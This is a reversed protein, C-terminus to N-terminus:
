KSKLKIQSTNMRVDENMAIVFFNKGLPTSIFNNRWSINDGNHITMQMELKPACYENYYQDIFHEEAKATEGTTANYISTIPTNDNMNIVANINAGSKLGQSIIVDSTPQTIFKFETDDHKNIYRDTEDSMYILEDNDTTENKANDSYIKCSFDKLIISEVHSLVVKDNASWKTHRFWTPHRRTIDNWTSNVPGLIRFQIAGSLNDSKKIPIATGDADINMSINVTNQLKFDTGIIYDGIKPNVGLTFTTTTVDVNNEEDHWTPESGLEVWHFESNGYRDINTEILRKNGIILKCELVPLKSVLDQNEGFESYNFQFLHNAKDKVWPQLSSDNLWVTEDIPDTPNEITFFKRTYFRGNENNDSPVTKSFYVNNAIKNKLSTFGDTEETLPQLQLSGGFVLYNTTEEDSPSYVGGNGGLYEIIPSHSQLETVTPEANTDDDVGNGNISIYLYNTMSVKAIPENDTVKADREVSGMNLIASWLRNGDWSLNHPIKWQNIFTGNSQEFIDSIDGDGNDRHFLWNPNRMVRLYWDIYKAKDYTIAEGNEKVMSIFAKKATSGNGESIYERMYLQKGSYPSILSDDDFPSTIIEEINNLDCKVSVQNYVDSVTITTDSAGHMKGTIAVNQPVTMSVSQNRTLEFWTNRKNRLTDWDFIYFLDGQQIIHLNLYQLMESIVDECTWVDDFSDGLLYNESIGLDAFVTREKGYETGKSCDYYVRWNVRSPNINQTGTAIALSQLLMQHFPVVEANVKATDYDNLKIDKYNYYQLASLVDICNISFEDLSVFPQSFTNPEVYGTFISNGSKNINVTINGANESWLLDGIYHDTVFNITCSKRIIPDFTSSLDTEITVPEGGFFLGNEGIEVITNDGDNKTITVTVINNDIDNFNGQIIM